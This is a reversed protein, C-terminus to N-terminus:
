PVGGGLCQRLGHTLFMYVVIGDAGMEKSVRKGFVGYLVVGIGEMNVRVPLIFGV